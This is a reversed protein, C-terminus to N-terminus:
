VTMSVAIKFNKSNFITTKTNEKLETIKSIDSFSLGYAKIVSELYVWKTLFDTENDKNLCIEGFLATKETLTMYLCKINMEDQRPKIESLFRKTLREAKAEDVYCQIDVGIEGEDSLAVACIDDSHSLSIYINSDKIYPKGNKNRELKPDTNAFFEKLSFLLTSSNVTNNTLLMQLDLADTNKKIFIIILMKETIPKIRTSSM